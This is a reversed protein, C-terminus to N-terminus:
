GLMRSWLTVTTDHGILENGSIGEDGSSLASTGEDGSMHPTGKRRWRKVWGLGVGLKRDRRALSHGSSLAAGGVDM